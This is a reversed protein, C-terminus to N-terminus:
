VTVQRNLKLPTSINRPHNIDIFGGPQKRYEEICVYMEFNDDLKRYQNSNYIDIYHKSQEFSCRKTRRLPLPPPINMLRKFMYIPDFQIPNSKFFHNM